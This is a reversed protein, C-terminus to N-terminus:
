APSPMSVDDDSGRTALAAAVACGSGRGRGLEARQAFRFEMGGGLDETDGRNATEAIGVAGDILHIGVCAGGCDGGMDPTEFRVHDNGKSGVAGIAMGIVDGNGLQGGGGDHAGGMRSVGLVRM